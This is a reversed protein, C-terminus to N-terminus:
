LSKWYEIRSLYIDRTYPHLMSEFDITIETFVLLEELLLPIGHHDTIKVNPHYYLLRVLLMVMEWNEMCYSQSNVILFFCPNEDEELDTISDFYFSITVCHKIDIRSLWKLGEPIWDIGFAESIVDISYEGEKNMTSMMLLISNVKRRIGLIKIYDDSWERSTKYEPMVEIEDRKFRSRWFNCDMIDAIIGNKRKDCTGLMLIDKIESM